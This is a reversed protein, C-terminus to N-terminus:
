LKAKAEEYDIMPLYKTRGNQHERLTIEKDTLDNAIEVAKGYGIEFVRQLSSITLEGADYLLEVAAKTMNDVDKYVAVRNPSTSLIKYKQKLHLAVAVNYEEIGFGRETHCLVLNNSHPGRAYFATDQEFTDNDELLSEDDDFVLYAEIDLHATLYDSIEQARGREASSTAGFIDVSERLGANRLCQEWEPHNRWISTVVIGYGYKECFESVWQVAQPDNVRGDEPAGWRRRWEGDINSWM